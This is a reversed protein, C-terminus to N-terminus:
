PNQWKYHCFSGVQGNEKDDESEDSDTLDVSNMEMHKQLSAKFTFACILVFYKIWKKALFM